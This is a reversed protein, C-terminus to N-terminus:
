EVQYETGGKRLEPKTNGQWIQDTGLCEWLNFSRYSRECDGITVYQLVSEMM